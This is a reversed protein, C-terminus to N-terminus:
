ASNRKQMSSKHWVHGKNAKILTSDTALIHPNVLDESVFLHGMTSIREKIDTSVSLRSGGTL